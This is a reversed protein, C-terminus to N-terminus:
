LRQDAPVAARQRGGLVGAAPIGIVLCLAAALLLTHHVTSATLPGSLAAGALGAGVAAGLLRGVSLVASTRGHASLPTANLAARSTPVFLMGLGLGVPILPLVTVLGDLTVGPLGLIALGGGAGIFGLVAPLQEGHRDVLRGALPAAVGVLVAVLILAASAGLASFGAVRQLYQEAIYFAGIMVAFTLAAILTAALVIRNMGPHTTPEDSHVVSPVHRAVAVAVLVTLPVLAWWDARWGFAVTLLGGLLPGALNSTGASAGWIGLATGRREPPFGSVAGALAAPSVLGAGAGQIVRAVLLAGFSSVLAGAAAGVAFVALGGLALRRAGFRDVLEGAPLLLLAYAGFYASLVASTSSGKVGLGHAVSPLAVTILTGDLQLLAAAATCAALRTWASRPVPPRADKETVQPRATLKPM